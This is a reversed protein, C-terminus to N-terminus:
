EEGLTSNEESIDNSADNKRFRRRAGVGLALLGSGFLFLTAPEPVPSPPPPTPSPIPTPSPTEIIPPVVIPTDNKKKIFGLPVAGAGLVWWPFGGGSAVLPAPAPCNCEESLVFEVIEETRVPGTGDQQQESNEAKKPDNGNETKKPDNIPNTPSTPTTPRLVSSSSQWGAGSSNTIVQQVNKIQIPGAQAIGTVLLSFSLIAGIQRLLRINM